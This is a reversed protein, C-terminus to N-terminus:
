TSDSVTETDTVPVLARQSMVIVNHGSDPMRTKCLSGLFHVFFISKEWKQEKSFKPWTIESIQDTRTWHSTSELHLTITKKWFTPFQSILPARNLGIKLNLVNQCGVKSLLWPQNPWVVGLKLQVPRVFCAKKESIRFLNNQSEDEESEHLMAEVVYFFFFDVSDVSANSHYDPWSRVHFAESDVCSMETCHCFFGAWISIPWSDHWCHLFWTLFSRDKIITGRQINWQFAFWPLYLYLTGCFILGEAM